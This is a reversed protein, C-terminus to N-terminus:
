RLKMRAMVNEPTFAKPLSIGRSEFSDIIKPRINACSFTGMLKGDENTGRPEFSFIDQTSIIEGEMGTIEVIKTIKRSGDRMRSQQVIINVASAIQERIARVPLDMGAMLVMTEIRAIADRPSNAHGTALSGDHGTNMAQLMDLAEGGRIEGVVIRDPRMRLSNKVLDRISVEGKGEINPPRSELRIVHDQHLSLEAADEITVIREDNPIFSSLINLLTTKGSGTGGSIFINLKAAVCSDLFDAMEESLTDFQIFDKMTLRKFPFRRITISAGDIALPPIIINVRSGDPLRADVYPSSEDVRRGIPAVIRDIVVRLQREDTFIRNYQTIKGNREAYIKDTGNVMIETIEPDELLDELPGFGLAENAIDKILEIRENRGNISFGQQDFITGIRDTIKAKLEAKKVPDNLDIQTLKDLRMESVLLKHTVLKINKYTERDLGYSSQDLASKKGPVTVSTGNGNGKVEPKAAESIELKKATELASKVAMSLDTPTVELVNKALEFFAKSIDLNKTNQLKMMSVLSGTQQPNQQINSANQLIPVGTNISTMINEVDYPIRGYVKKKMYSQITNLDIETSSIGAMNLVIQFRTSPFTLDKMLDLFKQTHEFTIIDPTMVMCVISSFDFTTILEESIYPQALDVVINEYISGCTALIEIVQATSLSELEESTEASLLNLGTKHKIINKLFSEKSIKEQVLNKLNKVKSIGPEINLLGAQCGGHIVDLELLCVPKKTEYTLAIALNGAIVSCGVGGKASQVVIIRPHANM